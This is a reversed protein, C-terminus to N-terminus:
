NANVNSFRFFAVAQQLTESQAQLEEVTAALEESSVSLEQVLSDTKTFEPVVKELLNGDREAVKV